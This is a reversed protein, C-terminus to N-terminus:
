SPINHESRTLIQEVSHTGGETELLQSPSRNDLLPLPTALWRSAKHEDGFVAVAHAILPEISRGSKETGEHTASKAVEWGSRSQDGKPAESKDLFSASPTDASM